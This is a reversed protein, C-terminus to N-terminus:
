KVRLRSTMHYVLSILSPLYDVQDLYEGPVWTMQNNQWAKSLKIVYVFM